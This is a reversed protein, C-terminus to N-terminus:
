ERRDLIRLVRTDRAPVPYANYHTMKWTIRFDDIGTIREADKMRAKVEAEIEHCRGEDAKIRDMRTAREHLMDVLENDHSLDITKDKTERSFILNLLERDMGPTVNPERKQDVHQWFDAAAEIIKKEAAPHRPVDCIALRADYADVWLACIMGFAADALITEMLCQLIVHSPASGPEAYDRDFVSKNTTKFQAVGLGRPDGHVFYDPTAGIRRENDRLFSFSKEIRLKPREELLAMGVAPEYIRGRRIVPNDPQAPLEILKAKEHFLRLPSKYPHCALLPAAAIDSATLLPERLALWQERTKDSLNIREVAM